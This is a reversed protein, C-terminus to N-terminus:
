QKEVPEILSWDALSSLPLIGTPFANKYFKDLYTHDLFISNKDPDAAAQARIFSDRAPLTENQEDLVLQLQDISNSAIFIGKLTATYTTFDELQYKRIQHDGITITELSKNKVSNIALTDPQERSLFTFQLPGNNIKGLSILSSGPNTYKSLHTLHQKIDGPQFFENQKFLVLSDIEQLFSSLDKAQIVVASNPPIFQNIDTNISTEKKCSTFAIFLSFFFILNKIPIKYLM